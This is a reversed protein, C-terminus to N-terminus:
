NETPNRSISILLTVDDLSSETTENKVYRM